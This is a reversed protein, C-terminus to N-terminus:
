RSQSGRWPLPIETLNKLRGLYSDICEFLRINCGYDLYSGKARGLPHPSNLRLKLLLSLFPFAVALLFSIGRLIASLPFEQHSVEFLGVSSIGVDPSRKVLGVATGLFGSTGM